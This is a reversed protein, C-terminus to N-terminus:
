LKIENSIKALKSKMTQNAREVRVQSQPDYDAGHLIIGLYTEGEKLHKFAYHTHAMTPGSGEQLVM